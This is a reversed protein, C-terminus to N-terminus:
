EDKIEIILTDKQVTTLANCFDDERLELHQKTKGDSKTCRGRM